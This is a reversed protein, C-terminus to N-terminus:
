TLFEPRTKIIDSHGTVVRATHLLLVLFGEAGTGLLGARLGDEQSLEIAPGLQATLDLDGVGGGSGLDTLTM